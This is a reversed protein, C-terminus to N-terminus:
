RVCIKRIRLHRINHSSIPSNNFSYTIINYLLRFARSDLVYLNMCFHTSKLIIRFYNCTSNNICLTHYLRTYPLCTSHQNMIQVRCSYHIFWLIRTCEGCAHCHPFSFERHISSFPHIWKQSICKSSLESLFLYIIFFISLLYFHPYKRREPLFPRAIFKRSRNMVLWYSYMWLTWLPLTRISKRNDISYDEPVFFILFKQIFLSPHCLVVIHKIKDFM